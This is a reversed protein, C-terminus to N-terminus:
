DWQYGLLEAMKKPIDTNDLMGHFHEAGAGYAFLPVPNATHGGASSISRIQHNVIGTNYRESIFSGLEWAAKNKKYVKGRANMLRANLQIGEEETLVIGTYKVLNDVIHSTIFKGDEGKKTQALM